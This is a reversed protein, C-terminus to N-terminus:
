ERILIKDGFGKTNKMFDRAEEESQFGQLFVRYLIEDNADRMEKIITTYPPYVDYQEKTIIAGEKKRFAGLQLAFSGGSVSQPTQGIRFEEQLAEDNQVENKSETNIVGKFGIVELRVKATGIKIMDIDKAAANSLDIIRGDVFPGRDNIRVITSKGNELNYVKVVTNMPFTKHAATHAYMNYTEGNSTKKAHFDPGYWSALGEFSDGLKVEEPHYWKGAVQYPKMTANQIAPSERMASGGINADAGSRFADLDDYNESFSQYTNKNGHEFTRKTTNEYSGWDEYESFAGKGGNYASTKACGCLLGVFIICAHLVYKQYM